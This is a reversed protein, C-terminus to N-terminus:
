KKSDYLKFNTNNKRKGSLIMSFYSQKINASKAADKITNFIENTITNIVKKHCTHGVLARTKSIKLKTEESRPIGKKHIRNKNAISLKQRHEISLKKGFMPNKNGLKANSYKQKVEESRKQNKLIKNKREKTEDSIGLNGEGGDTLNALCGTKLDIRGYFKIFEIEKQKIFEYDNSELLIESKYKTKAVIRNWIINRDKSYSRVYYLYKNNILQKTGIGIYFPENKDLRIHRYLYYKGEELIM